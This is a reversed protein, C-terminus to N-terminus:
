ECDACVAAELALGVALAHEASIGDIVAKEYADQAMSFM